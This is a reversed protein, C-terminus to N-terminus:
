DSEDPDSTKYRELEPGIRDYLRGYAEDLLSCAEELRIKEKGRIWTEADDRALDPILPDTAYNYATAIAHLDWALAQHREDETRKIEDSRLPPRLLSKGSDANEALFERLETLADERDDSFGAERAVEAM